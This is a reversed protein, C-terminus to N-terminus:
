HIGKLFTKNLLTYTLFLLIGITLFGYYKEPPDTKFELVKVKSKELKDIEDYIYSLEKENKARFYKGDTIKAIQNLLAEDIEVPMQQMQTGFFTQVPYPAYGNKGVGITYVRIGYEKAIEAATRPDIDGSNNVGDTLLIIVKSKADSERLRNIATILGSGIATGPTVKGPEVNKLLESLLKHDTTLPAQTYAEGEYVVLGIRDNPRKDIFDLATQKAAELRNPEFDEALMSGSIDIALVVDIGEINKKKYEEVDVPDQPKALASVIFAISLMAIFLNIYKFFKVFNFNSKEFNNLDSLNVEKDDHREKIISWLVILPIILLLWFADKYVYEYDFISIDFLKSWM